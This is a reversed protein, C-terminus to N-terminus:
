HRGKETKKGEKEDFGCGDAAVLLDDFASELEQMAFRSGEEVPHLYEETTRKNKHGLLTGVPGTGIKLQDHMYTAVFHRIAHFGYHPAGARKCVSRMLKPRRKYRGPEIDPNNRNLNWFVYEDQVRQNWQTWLASYLHKNVPIYRPELNGGKRKRTWLTVYKGHFNVDCWRLKLIESIRALTHFLILLLTKQEPKAAMFIKTFEEKTPPKKREKNEPLKELEAVPNHTVVKLVDKAYTFLASIEKRHVNYNHNTPRTALYEHIYQPTIETIESNGRKLFEAYVMCKYEYTQETHRKQSWDLYKNAVTEFDTGTPTPSPAQPPNKVEKRREERATRAEGKTPFGRAAYSKKEHEFSYCWDGRTKDKWLGM